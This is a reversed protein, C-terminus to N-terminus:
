DARAYGGLTNRLLAKLETFRGEKILARSSPLAALAQIAEGLSASRDDCALGQAESIAQWRSNWGHPCPSTRLCCPFAVQVDEGPRDAQHCLVEIVQAMAGSSDSSQKLEGLGLDNMWGELVNGILSTRSEVHRYVTGKAIGVAAAVTDMNFEVCGATALLESAAQLIAKERWASVRQSFRERSSM